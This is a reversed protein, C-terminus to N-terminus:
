WNNETIVESGKITEVGKYGYEFYVENSTLISDNDFTVIIKYVNEGVNKFAFQVEGKDGLGIAVISGQKHQLVIKKANKGSENKITVRAFEKSLIENSYFLTACFYGFLVLLIGMIIGLLLKNM